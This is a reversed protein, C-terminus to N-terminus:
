IRFRQDQQLQLCSIRLHSGLRDSGFYIEEHKEHQIGESLYNESKNQRLLCDIYIKLNCLLYFRIIKLTKGVVFFLTLVINLEAFIYCHAAPRKGTLTVLLHFLVTIAIIKLLQLSCFSIERFVRQLIDAKSQRQQPVLTIMTFILSRTNRPSM